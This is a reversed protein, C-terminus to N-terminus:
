LILSTEPQRHSIHVASASLLDHATTYFTSATAHIRLYLIVDLIIQHRESRADYHLSTEIAL